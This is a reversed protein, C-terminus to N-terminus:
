AVAQALNEATLVSRTDGWAIQARALILTSPFHARAQEIDHVVAIVTRREDHWRAILALLAEVTRADVAAFPEDLLLVEANLLLLRAFLVRRMQGVSLEGIRRTLADALGVAEVAEAIRAAAYPGANRFAGLERWLGLGVFERVTVPYTLDLEAQQQLYAVRDRTRAPCIVEGRHPPALGSLVNLLTTKGAGNPGVVATLSGPAFTGSIDELAVRRGHRVSVNRVEIGNGPPPATAAQFLVRQSRDRERFSIAHSTFLANGYEDVRTAV